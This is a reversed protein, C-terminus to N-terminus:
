RPGGVTRRMRSAKWSCSSEMKSSRAPSRGAADLGGDASAVSASSVPSASIASCTILARRRSRGPGRAPRPCRREGQEGQLLRDGAVQPDDDGRQPHDALELPHAVEGHVDGLDGPQPHGSTATGSSTRGVTAGSPRPRRPCPRAPDGCIMASGRRRPRSRARGRRRPSPGAAGCAAEGLQEGVVPRVADLRGDVDGQQAAVVLPDGVVGDRDGVPDDEDDGALERDDVSGDRASRPRDTVARGAARRQTLSGPQRRRRRGRRRGRPRPLEGGAVTPGCTTTSSTSWRCAPPSTSAPSTTTASATSTSSWRACATATPPSWCPRGPACTPRRDDSEWYPLMRAIVDKLCETRPLEDGLDAYRPDGVQSFEDDDDLPPPPVDFSRRWLM